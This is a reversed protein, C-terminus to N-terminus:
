STSQHLCDAPVRGNAYTIPRVNKWQANANFDVMRDFGNGMSRAVFPFANRLLETLGQELCALGFLLLVCPSPQTPLGPNCVGVGGRVMFPYKGRMTRTEMCPLGGFLDIVASRDLTVSPWCRPNSPFVTGHGFLFSPWLRKQRCWVFRSFAARMTSAIIDPPSQKHIWIGGGGAGGM